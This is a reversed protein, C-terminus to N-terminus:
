IRRAVPLDDVVKGDSRPFFCRRTAFLSLSPPAIRTLPPLLLQFRTAIRFRLSPQFARACAARMSRTRKYQTRAPSTKRSVHGTISAPGHGEARKLKCCVGRLILPKLQSFPSFRRRRTPSLTTSSNRYFLPSPLKFGLRTLFQEYQFTFYRATRTTRTYASLTILSRPDHEVRSEM